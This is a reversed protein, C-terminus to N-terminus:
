SSWVYVTVRWVSFGKLFLYMNCVDVVFGEAVIFLIVSFTVAWIVALM